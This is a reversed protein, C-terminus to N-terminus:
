YRQKSEKICKKRWGVMDIPDTMESAEVDAKYIKITKDAEGTILRTGTGDFETCFIANEADLSGPQVISSGSQFNYGTKYDWFNMSGDDGGSVLVGDENVAMANVVAKHGTYSKLFRGDKAQWYKLCDTAGSVFTNEFSPEVLARVSKQHHTLTTMCKGAVLDWLKITSDMSGTVIQPDTSRTLLSAVTNDHGALVHVQTKTRIDWVRAVADRGGTVLLDLTPHLKLCFVGSLHGHYHRIVQNTELDWCKVMKDEGASFLYPHRSSFALGRVPSIHGTLTLKLADSAGVSAKALDWLKITRDASGTAFMENTPDMAISRVWGLHSSLVTSLKWPAHWTPTPIKLRNSSSQKSKVVIVGAKNGNSINKKKTDDGQGTVKNQITMVSSSLPKMQLANDKIGSDEVVIALTGDTRSNQRHDIRHHRRKRRNISNNLITPDTNPIFATQPNVAYVVRSRKLSNKASFASLSQYSKINGGNKTSAGSSSM